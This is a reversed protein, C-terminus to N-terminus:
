NTHSLGCTAALHSLDNRCENALTTLNAHEANAQQELAARTQASRAKAIEPASPITEALCSEYRLVFTNCSDPLERRPPAGSPATCALSCALGLLAPLCSSILRRM